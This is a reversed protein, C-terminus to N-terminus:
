LLDLPEVSERETRASEAFLSPSVVTSDAEHAAFLDVLADRYIDRDHALLDTNAAELGSIEDQPVPLGGDSALTLLGGLHQYRLAGRISLPVRSAPDERLVVRLTDPVEADYFEVFAPNGVRPTGLLVVTPALGYRLKIDLACLSALASGLSFGTVYIADHEHTEIATHLDARFREYLRCFGFHVQADPAQDRSLIDRPRWQIAQADDLASQVTEATTAGGTGRFAVVIQKDRQAIYAQGATGRPNLVGAILSFRAGALRQQIEASTPQSVWETHRQLSYVTQLAGASPDIGPTLPLNNDIPMDFM